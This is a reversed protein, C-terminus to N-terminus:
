IKQKLKKLYDKGNENTVAGLYFDLAAGLYDDRDMTSGEMFPSSDYSIAMQFFLRSYMEADFDERYFGQRRGKEINNVLVQSFKESFNQMHKNFIAPYYRIIQKLLISKNTATAKVLEDDKCLMRELANEYRGDLEEFHAIIQELKYKLVTELLAEKNAYNQYLTKKSIGFARAVDDMTLTKAGHEIFLETVKELFNKDKM